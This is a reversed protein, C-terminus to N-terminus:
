HFRFSYLNADKLYVRMRVPKGALPTIDTSKNWYVLRSIENGILPQTEKMSFGPLSNGEADLLEIRIEGAASTSYNVELKEGSFVFPKTLMEGGAYGASLSAFGDLRMSYRRLHASPQAYDQNVYLSMEEAGTQVVNLAPYNSRSVWNQLGIGPRIFSEMFQREYANSGRSSMLVVDSCDNYYKPDVGLLKAEEDGIVKRNPMFRAGIALYIHPARFYPSTQQTYLHEYPTDGFVMAEPESWHIFDPSTTRSVSRYGSYGGGTWTRFYCVYQRESESWFAVNQSDFVGETFVPDGQLRQWHIGDESVFAVLGSSSTGGLAKYRQQRPADPNTDIFPSFNHTVPAANALIVNNARSGAMEHIGLNPKEWRVGDLSEAYCTVESDNGDKGATPVGRYYARYLDGDKLITVYASFAGEWPEDFALVKGQDVPEHLIVQAGDLSEILKRDVFLERDSGITLPAQALVTTIGTLFSLVFYSFSFRNIM